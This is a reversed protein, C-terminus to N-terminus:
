VINLVVLSGITLLADVLGGLDGLFELFTYTERNHNIKDYSFQIEMGTIKYEHPYRNYASPQLQGINFTSFTKYSVFGNALWKTDDELENEQIETHIFNPTPGIQINKLISEQIIPSKFEEM